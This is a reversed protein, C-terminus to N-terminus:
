YINWSLGKEISNYWNTFFSDYDDLDSIKIPNIPNDIIYEIVKLYNDSNFSDTWYDEQMSDEFDSELLNDLQIFQELTYTKM